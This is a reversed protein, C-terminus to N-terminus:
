NKISENHQAPKILVDLIVVPEVPVNQHGLTTTTPKNVIKDVIEMGEVVQGFVAYGANRSSLNLFENDVVNIFFQSRASNPDNTRAMALTGRTNKLGNFSENAIPSNKNEKEKMKQDFGGGQLMFNPIARHFITGKYFGSAVYSEFNQSTIPAQQNFLEIHINGESTQMEIRTNEAWATMGSMILGATIIIKKLM